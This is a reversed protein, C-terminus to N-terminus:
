FPLVDDIPSLDELADGKPKQDPSSDVYEFFNVVCEYFYRDEGTATKSKRSAFRGSVFIRRGKRFSEYITRGIQDWAVCPVFDAERDKGRNCAVSFTVVDKGSETRRLVPDKTLRGLLDVRNM